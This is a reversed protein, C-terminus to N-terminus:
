CNKSFFAPKAVEPKGSFKQLEFNCYFIPDESPDFLKLPCVTRSIIFDAMKIFLQHSLSAKPTLKKPKPDLHTELLM